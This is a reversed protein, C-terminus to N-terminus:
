GAPAPEFPFIRKWDRQMDVVTWDKAKAERLAVDIQGISSPHDYACARKADTRHVLGLFRM